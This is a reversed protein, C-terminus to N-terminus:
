LDCTMLLRGDDTAGYQFGCHEFVHRARMNDPHVTLTVRHYSTDGAWVLASRVLATGIGHGRYEPLLGIGLEISAQSELEALM